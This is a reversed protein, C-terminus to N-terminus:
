SVYRGRADRRATAARRVGGAVRGAHRQQYALLSKAQLMRKIDALEAFDHRLGVIEAHVALLAMSLGDIRSSLDAKAPASEAKNQSRSQRFLGMHEVKGASQQRCLGSKIPTCTTAAQHMRPELKAVFHCGRAGLVRVLRTVQRGVAQDVAELAGVSTV